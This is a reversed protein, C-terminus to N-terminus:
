PNPPRYEKRRWTEGMEHLRNEVWEKPLAPTPSRLIEPPIQDSPMSNLYERHLRSLIVDQRWRAAEVADALDSPAARDTYWWLGAVILFGCGAAFILWAVWDPVDLLSLALAILWGGVGIAAAVSKGGRM